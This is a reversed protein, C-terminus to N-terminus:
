KDSTESKLMVYTVGGRPTRVQLMVGKDLSAKDLKEKLEDASTVAQQEVKTVLMGRALGASAALGNREVGTLLVGKTTESYGLGEALKPTLDAAEAGIKDLSATNKIRRRCGLARAGQTTGFTPPQEDITM